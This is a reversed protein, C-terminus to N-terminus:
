AVINLAVRVPPTDELAAHNVAIVLRDGDRELERTWLYGLEQGRSNMSVQPTDLWGDGAPKCGPDCLAHQELRNHGAFLILRCATLPIIRYQSERDM